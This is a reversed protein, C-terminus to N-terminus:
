KYCYLYMKMYVRFPNKQEASRSFFSVFKGKSLTDVVNNPFILKTKRKHWYPLKSTLATISQFATNM